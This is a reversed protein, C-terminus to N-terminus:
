LTGKENRREAAEIQIIRGLAERAVLESASHSTGDRISRDLLFCVDETAETIIKQKIEEIEEETYLTERLKNKLYRGIPMKRGRFRFHDPADGLVQLAHKGAETQFRDALITM